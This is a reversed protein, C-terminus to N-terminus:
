LMFPKNHQCGIYLKIYRFFRGLKRHWDIKSKPVVKKLLNCLTKNFAEALGNAPAHYMSLKHQAFKFKEYFNTMLKNVFPKTNDTIIYQLVGYRYIIHTWFSTSLNRKKLKLAIAETWKSFCNTAALIYIHGVSSKPTLPGVVDLGSAEFPWSAMTLHLPEPPQYIFNVHFQCADCRKAYNICNYVM